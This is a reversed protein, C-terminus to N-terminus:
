DKQLFLNVIIFPWVPTCFISLMFSFVVNNPWYYYKLLNLILFVLINITALVIDNKNM